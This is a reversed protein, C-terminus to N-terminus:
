WCPLLLGDVHAAHATEFALLPSWLYILVRNPSRGVAQLLGVLLGGALLGSAAMVIQFWRVSDPRIRWLLAYTMETAPPYVTVSGKRNLYPWIINDRLYTLEPAKPPYRYPSIGQAQVRGDWIYRYMDDSLTPPTFILWGQMIAALAFAATLQGRSFTEQRLAVVVAGAYLAFAVFFLIEFGITHQRLDSLWWAVLYPLLLLLGLSLSKSKLSGMLRTQIKSKVYNSVIWEDLIM